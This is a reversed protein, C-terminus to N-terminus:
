IKMTGGSFGFVQWGLPVNMTSHLTLYCELRKLVSVWETCYLVTGNCENFCHYIEFVVKVIYGGMDHWIMDHWTMYDVFSFCMCVCECENMCCVLPAMVDCWMVKEWQELEDMPRNVIVLQSWKGGGMMSQICLCHYFEQEGDNGKREM